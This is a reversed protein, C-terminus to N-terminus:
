SNEPKKTGALFEGREGWFGSKGARFLGVFVGYEFVRIASADV